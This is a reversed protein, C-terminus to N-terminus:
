PKTEKPARGWEIDSLEAPTIGLRRAEDRLNLGRAVRDDRRRRGDEIRSRQEDSLEGSGRCQSCPLQGATCGNDRYKLFGFVKGTGDCNACRM